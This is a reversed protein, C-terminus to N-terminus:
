MIDKASKKKYLIPLKDNPQSQPLVYPANLILFWLNPQLSIKTHPEFIEISQVLLFITMGQFYKHSRRPIQTTTARM